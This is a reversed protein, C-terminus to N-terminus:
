IAPKNDFEANWSKMGGELVMFDVEEQALAYTAITARNGSACIVVVPKDTPISDTGGPAFIDALPINVAGDIKSELLEDPERVDLLYIDENSTIKEMLETSDIITQNDSILNESVQKIGGDLYFTQLGLDNLAKSLPKAENGDKDILIFNYNSVVDPLKNQITHVRKEMTTIDFFDNSAGILHSELYQENPRIDIIFIRENNELLTTVTQFEVGYVDMNTQQPNTALLIGGTSALGIIISGIIVINKTQM